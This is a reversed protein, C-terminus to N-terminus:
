MPLLSTANRSLSILSATGGPLYSVFYWVLAILQIVCFIITGIYQHAVVAFYLTLLLSSGYTLTFPLREKSIIHRFHSVPGKLLAFSTMMLISGMTFALAFKQPRVVIIPLTFFALTFCLLGVGVCIFFGVWRQWYTLAFWGPEQSQQNVPLYGQATNKM